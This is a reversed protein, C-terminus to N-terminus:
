IFKYQRMRGVSCACIGSKGFSSSFHFFLPIEFEVKGSKPCFTSFHFEFNWKEEVKRGTKAFTSNTSKRHTMLFVM